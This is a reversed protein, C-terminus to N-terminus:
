PADRLVFGEKRIKAEARKRETINDFIAAFYEKEPCYVSISFWIDLAAIYTEFREPKGGSAVRGYIEFIQPNSERLGPIVESVKKGIVQNLGMLQEFAPNVELYIFDSSQDNAYLMQCLAFGELMHHFLSRYHEKNKRITRHGLKYDTIDHSTPVLLKIRGTEDRISKLAFDLHRLSGDAARHTVEFRIAEGKAARVIADRLQQQLPPSHTWWPTEWFPKGLVDAAEIGAFDLATRNADILIGDTTLLGILQSAQDFVARLKRETEGTNKKAPKHGACKEDLARRIAPVLQDLRDKPVFDSAGAKILEVVAEEGPRDAVVLVPIERHRLQVIQVASLGDFTPLKLDSLVIDPQYQELAAIFADRTQVRQSVFSIGGNRLHRELSEANEVLDELLLIRM